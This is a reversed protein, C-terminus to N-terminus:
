MGGNGYEIMVGVNPNNADIYDVLRISNYRGYYNCTGSLIAVADNVTRCAKPIMATASNCLTAEYAAGTNKNLWLYSQTNELTSLDYDDTGVSIKCGICFSISFLLFCLEFPLMAKLCPFYM